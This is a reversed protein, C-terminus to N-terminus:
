KFLNLAQKTLLDLEQFTTSTHSTNTPKNELHKKLTITNDTKIDTNTLM